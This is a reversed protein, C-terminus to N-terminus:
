GGDFTVTSGLEVKKDKEDELTWLLQMFIKTATMSAGIFRLPDFLTAIIPLVNRFMSYSAFFM